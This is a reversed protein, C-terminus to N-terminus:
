AHAAEAARNVDFPPVVGNVALVQLHRPLDVAQAVQLVAAPALEHGVRRSFVTSLASHQTSLIASQPNGIASQRNRIRSQAVGYLILEHVHDFLGWVGIRLGRDPIGLGCDAIRLGCDAFDQEGHRRRPEIDALVATLRGDLVHGRDRQAGGNVEHIGRRSELPAPSLAPEHVIGALLPALVPKAGVEEFELRVEDQEADGGGTKVRVHAHGGEDLPRQGARNDRGFAGVEVGEVPNGQLPIGAQIQGQAALELRGAAFEGFALGPVLDGADGEARWDGAFGDSIIGM